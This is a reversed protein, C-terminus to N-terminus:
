VISLTISFTYWSVILLANVLLTKVVNKDADWKEEKTMSSTGAIRVDLQNRAMNREHYRRREKSTLGTEEDTEDGNESTMDNMELEESPSRSATSEEEQGAVMSGESANSRLPDAESDTTQTLHHPPSPNRPNM